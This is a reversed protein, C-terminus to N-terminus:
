LPLPRPTLTLRFAGHTPSMGGQAPLIALTASGNEHVNRYKGTGGTISFAFTAPLGQFGAQFPVGTLHITVKGHPGKLTADGQSQGGTIFGTGHVVATAHTHGIGQIQGNGSAAFAPGADPPVALAHYHGRITGDLQIMVPGAAAPHSHPHHMGGSLLARREVEEVTPLVAHTHRRM